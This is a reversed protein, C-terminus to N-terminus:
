FHLINCVENASVSALYRDVHKKLKKDLQQHYVVTTTVVDLQYSYICDM